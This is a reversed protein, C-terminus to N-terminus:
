KDDKKRPRGAKKKEETVEEENPVESATENIVEKVEEVIGQIRNEANEITPEERKLEFDEDTALGNNVLTLKGYKYFNQIGIYYKSGQCKCGNKSENANYLENYMDVLKDFPFTRRNSGIEELYQKAKMVKEYTYGNKSSISVNRKEM